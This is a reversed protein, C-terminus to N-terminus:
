PVNMGKKALYDQAFISFLAKKEPRHIRKLCVAGSGTHVKWVLAMQNGQIVDIKETQVDWGQLVNEALETLKKEDEASLPLESSNGEEIVEQNEAMLPCM